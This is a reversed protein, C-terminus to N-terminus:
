LTHKEFIPIVKDTGSRERCSYILHTLKIRIIRGQDFIIIALQEPSNM